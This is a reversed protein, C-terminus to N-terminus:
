EPSEYADKEIQLAESQLLSIADELISIVVYPDTEDLEGLDVSM